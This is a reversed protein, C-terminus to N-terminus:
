IRKSLILNFVICWLTACHPLTTVLMFLQHCVATTQQRRITVGFQSLEWDWKTRSQNIRFISLYLGAPSAGVLEHSTCREACSIYAKLTSVTVRTLQWFIQGTVTLGIVTHWCPCLTQKINYIKLKQFIEFCLHILSICLQLYSLAVCYNKSMSM